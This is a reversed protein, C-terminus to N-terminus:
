AARLLDLEDPEIDTLPVNNAELCIRAYETCHTKILEQKKLNWSTWPPPVNASSAVVIQAFREFLSGLVATGFGTTPNYCIGQPFIVRQFRRKLPSSLLAWNATLDRIFTLGANVLTGIDATRDQTFTDLESRLTDTQGEIVRQRELFQEKTYSGDERMEFVRARQATLTRLRDEVGKKSVFVNSRERTSYEVIVKVISALAGFRPRIRSVAAVFEEEVRKQPFSKGYLGCMKSACHYYRYRRTRGRPASATLPRTCTACLITRRLPFALTNRDRRKMHRYKGSRIL